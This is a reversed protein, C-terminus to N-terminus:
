MGLVLFKQYTDLIVDTKRSNTKIKIVYVTKVTSADQKLQKIEKM